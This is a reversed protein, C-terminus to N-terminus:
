KHFAQYHLISSHNRARARRERKELLEGMCGYITLNPIWCTVWAINLHGFLVAHKAHPVSRGYGFILSTLRVWM